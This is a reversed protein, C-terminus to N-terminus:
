HAVDAAVQMSVIRSPDRPPQGGPLRGIRELGYVVDGIYTYRGDLHPADRLLIFFQSTATAADGLKPKMGVSGRQFTTGTLEADM